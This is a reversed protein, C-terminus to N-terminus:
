GDHFILIPIMYSVTIIPALIAAIETPGFHRASIKGELEKLSASATTFSKTLEQMLPAINDSSEHNSDM